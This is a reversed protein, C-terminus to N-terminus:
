EGRLMGVPGRDDGYQPCTLKHGYIIAREIM